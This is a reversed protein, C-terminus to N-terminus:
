SPTGGPFCQRELWSLVASCVAEPALRAVDLVDVNPKAFFWRRKAPLLSAVAHEFFDRSRTADGRKRERLVPEPADLFLVREPLCKRLAALEPALLTEVDWDKGISAPYCLTYFEIEEAGYDLISVPHSQAQSWRRLENEIWLRQIQLYDPLRTKELRRAAVQGLTEANSEYIVYAWPAREQLARLATTKGAAMCGQLSFVRPPM